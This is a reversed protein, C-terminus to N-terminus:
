VWKPRGFVEACAENYSLGDEHMLKNLRKQQEEHKRAAYRAMDENHIAIVMQEEELNLVEISFIKKPYSNTKPTTTQKTTSM